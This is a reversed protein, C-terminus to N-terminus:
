VPISRGMRSQNVASISTNPNRTQMPAGLGTAPQAGGSSAAPQVVTTQPAVVIPAQNQIKASDLEAQSQALVPAMPGQGAQIAANFRGNTVNNLAAYTDAGYLKNPDQRAMWDAAKTLRVGGGSSSSESIMLEGTKPDKVVQVIHGINNFRGNAHSGGRIGIAMGERLDSVDNLKDGTLLEGSAQSLTQILGAAGGNAGQTILSKAQKLDVDDAEKQLSDIMSSNIAAVWGSCDIYGQNLNKGTVGPIHGQRGGVMYYKVNRDIAQQTQAYLDATVSGVLADGVYSGQGGRGAGKIDRLADLGGHNATNLGDGDYRGRGNNGRWSAWQSAIYDNFSEDSKEGSKWQDYGGQRLLALALKDQNEASFLADGSIGSHQLTNRLTGRIFQYKGAASSKSGAAISQDQWALVDNITMETLPKPTKIKSGGWVINYDGKSEGQGISDLLAHDVDGGARSYSSTPTGIVRNRSVGGSYSTGGYPGASLGQGGGSSSPNAGFINGFIGKKELEEMPDKDLAGKSTQVYIGAEKDTMLALMASLSAAISGLPNQAIARISPSSSAATAATVSATVPKVPVATARTAGPDAKNANYADRGLLAADLGISAATGFGPITSALGSATELGAGTWDGDMARKAGLGLGVIAGILPIKKLLTKGLTKGIMGGALGKIGGLAGIVSRGAVGALGSVSQIGRNALAGSAARIGGFAGLGMAGVRAGMGLVSKGAGFVTSAAGRALGAGKGLLGTLSKPLISTALKGMLAPSLTSLAGVISVITGLLGSGKEGEGKGPMGNRLLTVTEETNQAITRLFIESQDLGTKQAGRAAAKEHEDKVRGANDKLTDETSSKREEDSKRKRRKTEGANESKRQREEEKQRRAAARADERQQKAAARDQEKQSKAADREDDKQKKASDKEAQKKRDAEAKEAQEQQRRADEERRRMQGLRNGDYARFAKDLIPVKNGGVANFLARPGQRVAYDKASARLSSMVAARGGGSVAASAGARGVAGLVAGLAPLPM